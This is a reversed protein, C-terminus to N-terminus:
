IKIEEIYIIVNEKIINSNSSKKKKKVKIKNKKIKIFSKFSEM